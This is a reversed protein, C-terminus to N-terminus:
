SHIKLRFWLLYCLSEIKGTTLDPGRDAQPQQLGRATAKDLIHSVVVLGLERLASDFRALMERKEKLLRLVFPIDGATM